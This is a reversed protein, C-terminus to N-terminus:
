REPLPKRRVLDGAFAGNMIEKYHDQFANIVVSMLANIAHVRFMTMSIDNVETPSLGKVLLHNNHDNRCSDIVFDSVADGRCKSDLWGFLDVFSIIQKKVADEADIVLYAVDDCAEMIYTMPHRIGKKLGTYQRIM